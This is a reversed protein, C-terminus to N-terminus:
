VLASSICSPSSELVAARTVFLPLCLWLLRQPCLETEPNFSIERCSLALCLHTGTKRGLVFCLWTTWSEETIQARSSPSLLAQMVPSPLQAQCLLQSPQLQAPKATSGPSTRSPVPHRFSLWRGQSQRLAAQVIGCSNADLM